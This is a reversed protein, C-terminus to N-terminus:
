SVLGDVLARLLQADFPKEIRPNPIGDLFQRARLTFAGGTMFIMRDTLEPIERALTAHLDMGTVQPMMLDCLIVDYREGARLRALADEARGVTEVHHEDALMRRVALAILAEDDIVLVRGRRGQRVRAPAEASAPARGAPAFPLLVSFSSGQGPASDVRIEGGMATVIRQCISLGLGTGVGVPKTTFFPTFLRHLVAPSMGTGTDVVDVAVRDDRVRTRVTIQNTEALGEPIAQAANVLLNVFVQGLRSENGLVPPVDQFDRVLRARHRIENWAIRLTSDLVARVDVAGLQEEESRSFVRLDRVIQRVRDAAERAEHVLEGLEGVHTHQALRAVERQALELNALVAALPNNIEHAVGAALTGVSAMRDSVILQAETQKKASIDRATAIAGTIEGGIVLPGLLMSFWRGDTAMTEVSVPKGTAIVTRLASDLAAHYEPTVFRHWPQGVADEPRRPPTTRNVFLIRGSPDIQLVLDPAHEVLAQWRSRSAEVEAFAGALALALTIQHGVGEAFSRWDDDRLDRHSSAMFLAGMGTEGHVLPVVLASTAGARGLVVRTTADPVDSSPLGVSRQGAILRRLLAEHGFFNALEGGLAPDGGVVRVTLAGDPGLRYLAGVSIGGADFCAELAEDLTVEVDRRRVVAESIGTMVRLEAALSSSRQALRANVMAHSELQRIMRTVRERELETAPPSSVPPPPPGLLVGRLATVLERADPTRVVLASAGARRALDRDADEVLSSTMLVIPVAAMAPLARMTAVLDYGDRIPMLIDSVVVDPIAAGAEALAGDVSTAAIVTFGHRALHTRTLTLMVPEDDVVLVRKGAGFRDTAAPRVPLHASVVQLLRSPEIPKTVIDDFGAGSIRVDELHSVFGSFALIRTDGGPGSRLRRALEIGDIDPLLLDQLVLAPRESAMLELARSGTPAEIVAYGEKELVFRVLKRTAANDEVLLVTPATM